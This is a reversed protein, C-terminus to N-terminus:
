AFSSVLVSLGIRAGCVSIVLIGIGFGFSVVRGGLWLIRVVYIVLIEIILLFKLFRRISLIVGLIRFLVLEFINISYFVIGKIGM